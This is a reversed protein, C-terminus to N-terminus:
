GDSESQSDPCRGVNSLCPRQLAEAASIRDSVPYALLGQLLGLFEQWEDADDGHLQRQLPPWADDRYRQLAMEALWFGRCDSSSLRIEEMAQGARHSGALKCVQASSGRKSFCRLNEPWKEYEQHTDKLEKCLVPASLILPAACIRAGLVGVAWVDSAKDFKRQEEGSSFKGVDDQNPPRILVTGRGPLRFDCAKGTRLGYLVQLQQKGVPVVGESFRKSNCIGELNPIHGHEKGNPSFRHVARTSGYEGDWRSLGWDALVVQWFGGRWFIFAVRKDNPTQSLRKLLINRPTIDCHALNEDHMWKVTKLVAKSLVKTDTLLEKDFAGGRFREGLEAVICHADMDASEMSVAPVRLGLGTVLAAGFRWGSTTHLRLSFIGKTSRKALDMLVAELLISARNGADYRDTGLKISFVNEGSRVQVVIGFAGSGQVRLLDYGSCIRIKDLCERVLAPLREWDREPIGNVGPYCGPPAIGHRDAADSTYNATIEMHKKGSVKAVLWCSEIHKSVPSIWGKYVFKAVAKKKSKDVHNAMCGLSGNLVLEVEAVGGGDIAWRQSYSLSVVRTPDKAKSSDNLFKGDYSTLFNGVSFGEGGYLHLGYQGKAVYLLRLQTHGTINGTERSKRDLELPLQIAPIMKGGPTQVLHIERGEPLDCQIFRLAEVIAQDSKGDNVLVKIHSLCLTQDPLSHLSLPPDELIASESSVQISSVVLSETVDLRSRKEARPDETESTVTGERESSRKAASSSGPECTAHQNASDARLGSHAEVGSIPSDNIDQGVTDKGDFKLLGAQQPLVIHQCTTSEKATPEYLRLNPLEKGPNCKRFEVFERLGRQFDRVWRDGDFIGSRSSVQSKLEARIERLRQRGATAFHVAKNKFEQMSSCILEDGTDGLTNKVLSYSVLSQFFGGKQVLYPVGAVLFDTCTTHGNYFPSDLAMDAHIVRESHVPIPVDCSFILRDAAIMAKRFSSQIRTVAFLSVKRFWFVSDPARQAIEVFARMLCPSIRGNRCFFAFVFSGEPLNWDSRTTKPAPEVKKIPVSSSFQDNPQYCHMLMLAEQAMEAQPCGLPLVFRDAVTFDIHGGPLTGPYGLFAGRLTDSLLAMVGTFSRYTPGGGDILVDLGKERIYDAITSDSTGEEFEEITALELLAEYHPDGDLDIPPRSWIFVTNGSAIEVLAVKFLQWWPTSRMDATVFGIKMGKEHSKHSSLSRAKPEADAVKMADKCKKSGKVKKHDNQANAAHLCHKVYMKCAEHILALDPGGEMGLLNILHFIGESPDLDNNIQFITMQIIVGLYKEVLEWQCNDQLSNHIRAFDDMFCIADAVQKKSNASWQRSSQKIISDVREAIPELSLKLVEDHASIGICSPCKFPISIDMSRSTCCNGFPQNCYICRAYMMKKNVTEISNGCGFCVITEQDSEDSCLRYQPSQSRGIDALEARCFPCVSEGDDAVGLCKVHYATNCCRACVWREHRRLDESCLTCFYCCQAKLMFPRTVEVVQRWQNHKTPLFSVDSDGHSYWETDGDEFLIEVQSTAADFNKVTGPFWQFPKEFIVEVNQGRRPLPRSIKEFEFSASRVYTYATHSGKGSMLVGSEKSHVLFMKNEPSSNLADLLDCADVGMDRPLCVVGDVSSIRSIVQATDIIEAANWGTCFWYIMSSKRKDVTLVDELPGENEQNCVFWEFQVDQFQKVYQKLLDHRRAAALFATKAHDINEKNEPLDVGIICAFLGSLVACWLAHGPGCGLDILVVERKGHVECIARHGRVILDALPSPQINGSIGAENTYYKPVLRSVARQLSCLDQFKPISPIKNINQLALLLEVDHNDNQLGNIELSPAAPDAPDDVDEDKDDRSNNIVFLASEPVQDVKSPFAHLVDPAADQV